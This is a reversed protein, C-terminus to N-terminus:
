RGRAERYVEKLHEINVHTYRQTTTISAHGLLEQVIRVDAGGNMLHTAFSHRLAHPHVKKPLPFRESYMRLVWRVGAASLPGGKKNIFLFTHGGRVKENRSPLYDALAKRAEDSFFVIREKNGKGIIRASEMTGRMPDGEIKGEKITDNFSSLQLSVLESVRVGASYMAMIIAKDREPWLIHEQEPLRAFAAMEEEWLFGPLNQPTKLNRQGAAPNDKRYAFRTLYNYFGRISSLARNVSVAADGEFSRDGLFDRVEQKTANEPLVGARECYASFHALDARYAILSNESLGRVSALYALYEEIKTRKTM